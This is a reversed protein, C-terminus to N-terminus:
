RTRRRVPQPVEDAIEEEDVELWDSSKADLLRPADGEKLRQELRDIKDSLPQTAEEVAARLMTQLESTKLSSGDEKKVGGMKYKIVTRVITIATTCGALISVVIILAIEEPM